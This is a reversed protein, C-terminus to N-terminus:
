KKLKSFREQLTSTKVTKPIEFMDNTAKKGEKFRASNFFLKECGLNLETIDKYSDQKYFFFPRKYIESLQDFEPNYIM